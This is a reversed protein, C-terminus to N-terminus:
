MQRMSKNRRPMEAEAYFPEDAFWIASLKNVNDM